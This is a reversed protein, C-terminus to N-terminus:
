GFDLVDAPPKTHGLRTLGTSRRRWRSRSSSPIPFVFGSRWPSSAGGRRRSLGKPTSSKAAPNRLRARAIWQLRFGLAHRQGAQDEGTHSTRARWTCATFGADGGRTADFRLREWRRLTAAHKQDGTKQSKVKMASTTTASRFDFWGCERRRPCGDHVDM